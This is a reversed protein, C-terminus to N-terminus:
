CEIGACWNQSWDSEGLEITSRNWSTNGAGIRGCIFIFNEWMYVLPFNYSDLLFVRVASTVGRAELSCSFISFSPRVIAQARRSGRLCRGGAYFNSFRM